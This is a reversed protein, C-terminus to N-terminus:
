SLGLCCILFASVDSQWCLDMYTLAITKGAHSLQDMFFALSWIVSVKLSHHQLLNELSGLSAFWDIGFSILRSHENSPSKRFSWYKPWKIHLASESSFVKISPFISPLLLPFCLILYNFLRVVACVHIQTFESLHHHVPFGPTSCDM